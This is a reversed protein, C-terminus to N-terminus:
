GKIKKPPIPQFKEMAMLKLCAKRLNTSTDNLIKGSITASRSVPAHTFIIFIGTHETVRVAASILCFVCRFSAAARSLLPIHHHHRGALILYLFADTVIWTGVLTDMVGQPFSGRFDMALLGRSKYSNGSPDAELDTEARTYVWQFGRQYTNKGGPSSVGTTDNMPREKHLTSRSYVESITKEANHRKCRMVLMDRNKIGPPTKMAQYMIENGLANRGVEEFKILM